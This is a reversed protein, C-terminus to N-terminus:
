GFPISPSNKKWFRAGVERGCQISTTESRKGDPRLASSITGRSAAASAHIAL